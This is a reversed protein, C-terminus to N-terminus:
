YNPGYGIISGGGLQASNSSTLPPFASTTYIPVTNPRPGNAIYGAISVAAGGGCGSVSLFNFYEMTPHSCMYIPKSDTIPSNFIKYVMSSSRSSGAMVPPNSVLDNSTYGFNGGDTILLWNVRYVPLSAPGAAVVLTAQKKHGASDTAEFLVSTQGSAVPTYINGNVSGPGALLAFTYPGAGGSASLTVRDLTTPAAPSFAVNIAPAMGPTVSITVFVDQKPSSSDSVHITDNETLSPATFMGYQDVTGTGAAVQFMYPPTGGSVYLAQQTGPSMAAVPGVQLPGTSVLNASTPKDMVAPPLDQACNQFALLIAAAACVTTLLRTKIRM